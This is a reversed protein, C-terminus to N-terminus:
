ARRQQRLEYLLRPEPKPPQGCGKMFRNGIHKWDAARFRVPVGCHACVYDPNITKNTM